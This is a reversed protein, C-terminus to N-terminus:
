ETGLKHIQPIAAIWGIFSHEERNLLLDQLSAVQQRPALSTRRV